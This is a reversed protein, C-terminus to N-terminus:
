RVDMSPEDAYILINFAIVISFGMVTFPCLVYSAM